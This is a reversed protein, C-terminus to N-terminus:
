QALKLISIVDDKTLRIYNGLPRITSRLSIEDFKSNDISLEKLAIKLNINRFFKRLKSIGKKAVIENSNYSDNIDFVRSAFQALKKPDKNYIYEMWAPFIIAMGQGHNIDYIASLEHEIRHCAYDGIRGTELLTNHSITSAWMIEARADYDKPNKIVIPANKLLTKLTAECLRDTLDTKKVQTFYSEMVHSMIDAIGCATLYPTLTYTFEPNMIAFKPRIIEDSYDKKYPGVENTLVSSISAESGAAPITLLVGIPLSEKAITKKEFFDWVDGNYFVGYGIAKASDIVSGGGVALIFNINEKRCIKIGERVLGIRPNTQVGPLEIIKVKAEKLSKIVKDYVGYKKISSKGYHLLIKNSYNKVENGLQNEAERGFIIKTSCQFVFNEM